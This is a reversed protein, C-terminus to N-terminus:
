EKKERTKRKRNLGSKKKIMGTHESEVQLSNKVSDQVQLDVKLVKKTHKINWVDEQNILLDM